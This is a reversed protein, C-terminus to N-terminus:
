RQRGQYDYFVQVSVLSLDHSLIDNEIRLSFHHVRKMCPKRRFPRAYKFRALSWTSLDRPFLRWGYCPLDTPDERDSADSYYGVRVRTNSDGRMTIVVSRINKLRDYTDYFMVPLQYYKEIPAFHTYGQADTPLCDMYLRETRLITRGDATMYGLYGIDQFYAVAKINNHRFWTPDNYSSITYDWEFTVNDGTPSLITLLYKSDIDVTCVSEAERVARLLGDKGPVGTILPDYRVDGNIKDSICVINNELAASSNLIIHVGQETNCFVLNNEVLQITWPLDCGIRSNINKYDMSIYTKGDIDTFSCEAKGVSGTKFVVLLNQQKGFGTIQESNDGALNYNSMPFYGANMSIDDNNSWFYANPQASCGGVVVCINDNGGYVVAYPCEMISNFADANEKSYIIRVTNNTPPNTVAPATSFKVTTGGTGESVTYGTTTLAQDDVYVATVTAGSVPLVYDTVGSKANYWIEKKPSLRNESQYRDGAHTEPDTNIQIVPVYPEVPAATFSGDTYSIKIYVGPAKYYLADQYRFFTGREVATEALTYVLTMAPTDVTPDCRYIKNGIHFFVYGYYRDQSCAHGDGMATEVLWRQGARSSLAGNNWNLNMMDPSENPKLLYDLQKLNLGGCLNSFTQTYETKPDAGYKLQYATVNGMARAM